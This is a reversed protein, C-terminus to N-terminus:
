VLRLVFPFSLNISGLGNTSLGTSAQGSRLRLARVCVPVTSNLIPVIGEGESM